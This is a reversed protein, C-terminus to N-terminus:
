QQCLENFRTSASHLWTGMERSCWYGWEEESSSFTPTKEKKTPRRVAQVDLEGEVEQSRQLRLREM